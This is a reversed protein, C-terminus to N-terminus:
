GHGAAELAAQETPFFEMRALKERGTGLMFFEIDVEIGSERGRGSARVQVLVREDDLERFDSRPDLRLDAFADSMTDAWARVGEHGYYTQTDPLIGPTHWEVAPDVDELAAEIDGRNFAELARRFQDIRGRVM